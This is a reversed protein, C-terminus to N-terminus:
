LLGTAPRHRAVLEPIPQSRGTGPRLRQRVAKAQARNALLRLRRRQQDADLRRRDM